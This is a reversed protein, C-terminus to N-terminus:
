AASEEPSPVPISLSLFESKREMAELTLRYHSERGKTFTHVPEALGATALERYSGRTEDTVDVREGSFRRRLIDRATESLDIAHSM